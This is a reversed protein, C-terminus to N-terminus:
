SNEKFNLKSFEGFHKLAAKDYEKAAEIRDDYYGLHFFKKNFSISARWKNLPKYWIVGKFGSKNHSRKNVNRSNNTHNCVRLNFKQNDLPNGNKHDVEILVDEIKLIDRHMIILRRTKNKYPRKEWRSVRYTNPPQKQAFWKFQNLYEFDEDDVLTVKNQTLKIEKM